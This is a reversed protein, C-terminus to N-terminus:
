ACSRVQPDWFSPRYALRYHLAVYLSDALIILREISRVNAAGFIKHFLRTLLLLLFVTAYPTEFSGYLRATVLILTATIINLTFVHGELVLTFLHRFFYLLIYALTAILMLHDGMAVWVRMPDHLLMLLATQGLCMAETFWPQTTAERDGLIRGINQGLSIVLFLVSIATLVYAWDPLKLDEDLYVMGKSWLVDAGEALDCMSLDYVKPDPVIVRGESASCGHKAVRNMPHPQAHGTSYRAQTPLVLNGDDLRCLALPTRRCPHGKSRPFVEHSYFHVGRASVRTAYSTDTLAAVQGTQWSIDRGDWLRLTPGQSVPLYFAHALM